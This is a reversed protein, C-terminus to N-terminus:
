WACRFGILGFRHLPEFGTRNACCAMLDHDLWCSGKFVKFNRERDYWDATWEHVNGAMDYCGYPSRGAPYCDM